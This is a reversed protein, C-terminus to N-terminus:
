LSNGYYRPFHLVTINWSYKVTIKILSSIKIIMEMTNM